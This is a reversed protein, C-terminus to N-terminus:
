RTGIWDGNSISPSYYWWTGEFNNCDVMEINFEGVKSGIPGFTGQLTNGSIVGDMTFTESYYVGTVTSNDIRTIELEGYNTDWTGEWYSADIFPTDDVFTILANEFLYEEPTWGTMLREDCDVDSALVLWIKAGTNEDFCAPLDSTNVSEAIHVDGKENATGSGLCILGTGPWPDPYYILTYDYGVELDHGNFVFEFEEGSLNYKMKGWAGDEIIPWEPDTDDKEYLYLHGINSNGAPGGPKRSLDIEPTLGCGVMLTGILLVILM